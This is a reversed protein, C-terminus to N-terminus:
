DGPEIAQWWRSNTERCGGGVFIISVAAVVAAVAVLYRMDVVAPLDSPKRGGM